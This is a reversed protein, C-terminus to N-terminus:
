FLSGAAMNALEALPAPYIGCGITLVMALFAALALSNSYVLPTNVTPKQLFMTKVVMLYYYVSIMSMIFGLFALWIYGQDVVATFLYLKGTFGALPPIGAMSLLSITMVATLMPSRQALGAYSAIDDSGTELHVATVVAFAGANAFVYLMGYFLIGKVGAASAAVLGTLLYGAQAMSSYALMRKINTQPIAALNGALISVAALIAVPLLWNVTQLPFAETMVRVLVAFGAAKSGMALLATVPVPAGEYIDPSWMHFPVASIKFAFGVIILAAGALAAPSSTMKQVIESLLISGTTGYVLSVGYLLVASSSAAIILYKMGAESSKGNGIIYAVLIFFTITMLEMAIYLTLFDNASAMLMMGLAVVVTMAYFEGRGRPLREVYEFSFLLTLVTAALFLQKFFVAYDDVVFMGQYFTTELGYRAFSCGFVVLLGAVTLYGLGKRSAKDPLFLDLLIILVALCVMSIETTLASLNM